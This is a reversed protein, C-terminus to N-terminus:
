SSRSRAQEPTTGTWDNFARFFSSPDDYGLLFSIESASLEPRKLYHLALAERTRSLLSQFTEDEEMLRRQLTRVSTGLKKSVAEMSASGSPLLELLAAHVRESTTATHHLESLRQKLRPEFDQWMQDNATLFPRTGDEASFLLSPAEARAVRVGFFDAFAGADDPLHPSRVALPRVSSRTAVRAFHVFFVLEMLVLVPPPAVSKDVWELALSTGSPTIDVHLAMPGILRKYAAFRQLATNLDPSCLAAFMPADFGEIPIGTGIRLPLRPDQGEDAIAQWLRFYEETPLSVRGRAFLDGPLAARKLVSSVSLGLDELLLRAAPPVPYQGPQTM